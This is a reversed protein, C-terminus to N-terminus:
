PAETVVPQRALWRVSRAFLHRARRMPTVGLGRSLTGGVRLRLSPGTEPTDVALFAEKLQRIFEWQTVLRSPAIKMPGNTINPNTNIEWVQIQGDKLAYDIRGYDVHALDFIRRLEAEHPNSQLYATEEAVFPEDVRDALKLVWKEGFLVHRAMIREGIRFASYKRFIGNPDATDLYEVALLDGKPAGNKMAEAVARELEQRSHVLPSLAGDHESERRVFLPFRDPSAGNVLRHARFRNLGAAHLAKLLEYRLLLKGPDNLLRFSEPRQAMLAWARRALERQPETLRELDAFIYTGPRLACGFALDEYFTPVVIGRLDRGWTELYTGLTYAHRRCLLVHIM